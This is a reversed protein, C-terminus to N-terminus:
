CWAHNPPGLPKCWEEGGYRATTTLCVLSTVETFLSKPCKGNDSLALTVYKRQM